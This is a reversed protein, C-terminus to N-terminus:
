RAGGIVTGEAPKAVGRPILSVAAPKVEVAVPCPPTAPGDHATLEV